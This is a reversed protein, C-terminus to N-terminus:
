SGLLSKGTAPTSYTLGLPGTLITDSRGSAGAALARQRRKASNQAEGAKERALADAEEKKRKELELRQQNAFDRQQNALADSAKRAEIGPKNITADLGRRTPSKPDLPNQLAIITDILGNGAGGSAGM